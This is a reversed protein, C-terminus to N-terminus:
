LLTTNADCYSCPFYTTARDNQLYYHQTFFHFGIWPIAEKCPHNHTCHHISHRVPFNSSSLLYAVFRFSCGSFQFPLCLHLIWIQHAVKCYWDPRLMQDGSCLFHHHRNYCKFTCPPTKALVALQHLWAPSCHMHKILFFLCEFHKRSSWKWFQFRM